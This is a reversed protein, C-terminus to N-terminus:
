LGEFFSLDQASLGGKVKALNAHSVTPTIKPSPTPNFASFPSQSSSSQSFNPLPPLTMGNGGYSSAQAASNTLSPFLTSPAVSTNARLPEPSSLDGFFDVDFANVALTQNAAPVMGPYTPALKPPTIINQRPSPKAPPVPPSPSRL